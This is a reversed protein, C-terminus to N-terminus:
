KSKTRNFFNIISYKKEDFNILAISLPDTIETKGFLEDNKQYIKKTLISEFQKMRKHFKNFLKALRLAEGCNDWSHSNKRKQNINRSGSTLNKKNSKELFLKKELGVKIRLFEVTSSLSNVFQVFVKELTFILSEIGFGNTFRLCRDVSEELIQFFVSISNEIQDIIESIELGKTRPITIKEEIIKREIEKYNDFYIFFPKFITLFVTNSNSISQVLLPNVTSLVKNIKQDCDRDLQAFQNINSLTGSLYSKLESLKAAIALFNNTELISELELQLKSIKDVRQLHEECENIRKLLRNLEYVSGFSKNTRKETQTLQHSILNMKEQFVETNQQIESSDVIIQPINQSLRQDVQDIKSNVKQHEQYCENILNPLNNEYDEIESLFNRSTEQSTLVKKKLIENVWKKIDTKQDYLSTFNTM